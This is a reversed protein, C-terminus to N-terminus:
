RLGIVGGATAPRCRTTQLSRGAWYHLLTGEDRAGSSLDNCEVTGDPGTKVVVIAPSQTSSTEGRHADPSASSRSVLVLAVMAAVLVFVAVIKEVSSRNNRM